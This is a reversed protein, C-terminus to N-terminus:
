LMMYQTPKMAPSQGEMIVSHHGADVDLEGSDSRSTDTVSQVLNTSLALFMQNEYSVFWRAFMVICTLHLFNCMVVHFVLLEHPTNMFGYKHSNFAVAKLKKHKQKM